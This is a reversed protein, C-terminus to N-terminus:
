FVIDGKYILSEVPSMRAIVEASCSAKVLVVDANDGAKPWQQIGKDDLPIPGATALKLM